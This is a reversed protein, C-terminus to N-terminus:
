EVPRGTGRVGGVRIGEREIVKRAEQASVGSKFYGVFDPFHPKAALSLSDDDNVVVGVFPLRGAEIYNTVSAWGVIPRFKIQGPKDQDWFGAKVGFDHPTIASIQPKVAAAAIKPTKQSTKRIAM